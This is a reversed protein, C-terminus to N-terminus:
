PEADDPHSQLWDRLCTAHQAAEANTLHVYYGDKHSRLGMIRFSVTGDDDIAHVTVVTRRYELERHGWGIGWEANEYYLRVRMGVQLATKQTLSTM